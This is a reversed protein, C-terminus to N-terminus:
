LIVAEVEKLKLVTEFVVLGLEIMRNSKEGAEAKRRTM